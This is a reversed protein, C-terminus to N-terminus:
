PDMRLNAGTLPASEPSALWAIVRAVDSPSLAPGEVGAIRLMETDVAIHEIGYHQERKQADILGTINLQLGNLSVRYGRGAVEGLLTAGLNDVYFQMTQKPDRTKIHVHHTGFAM